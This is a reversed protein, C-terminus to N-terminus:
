EVHNAAQLLGSRARQAQNDVPRGRRGQLAPKDALVRRQGILVEGDLRTDPFFHLSRCLVKVFGKDRRWVLLRRADQELDQAEEDLRRLLECGRSFHHGSAAIALASGDARRDGHDFLAALYERGDMAAQVTRERLFQADAKLHNLLIHWDLAIGVVHVARM